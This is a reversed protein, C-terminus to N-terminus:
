CDDDLDDDEYDSIQEERVVYYLHSAKEYMNFFDNFKESGESVLKCINVLLETAELLNQNTSLGPQDRLKFVDQKLNHVFEGLLFYQRASM